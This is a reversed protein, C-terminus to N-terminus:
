LSFLGVQVYSSAVTAFAAVILVQWTVSAMIIVTIVIELAPTYVFSISFPIDFDLTSLDSSAQFGILARSILLQEYCVNCMVSHM